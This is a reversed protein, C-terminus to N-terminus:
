QGARRAVRGARSVVRLGVADALHAPGSDPSVLLNEPGAAMCEFQALLGRVMQEMAEAQPLTATQATLKM